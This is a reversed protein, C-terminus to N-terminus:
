YPGYSQKFYADLIAQKARTTLRSNKDDHERLWATPNGGSEDLSKKLLALPYMIPSEARASIEDAMDSWNAGFQKEAWLMWDWYAQRVVTEPILDEVMNHTNSPLSGFLGVGFDEGNERIFAKFFASMVAPNSPHEILAIAQEIWADSHGAILAADKGIRVAYISTQFTCPGGSQWYFHILSTYPWRLKKFFEYSGNGTFDDEEDESQAAAKMVAAIEIPQNPILIAGRHLKAKPNSFADKVLSRAKRRNM